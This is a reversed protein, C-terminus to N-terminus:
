KSRKWSDPPKGTEMIENFCKEFIKQCIESEMMWKYVEGKMENPGPQKGNKIKGISNVIDEKNINVREMWYKIEEDFEMNLTDFHEVLVEPIMMYEHKFKVKYKEGKREIDGEVMEYHELLEAPFVQYRPIGKRTTKLYTSDVYEVAIYQAKREATWYTEVKENHMQYISRWGEMVRDPLEEKLILTDSQDFVAINAQKQEIGRIKSIYKWIKKGSDREERIETAMQVEFKTIAAKVMEKVKNKQTYYEQLFREKEDLTAYRRKRNINRRKKIEEEIQRTFWVPRPRKNAYSKRICKRKLTREASEAILEHFDQM